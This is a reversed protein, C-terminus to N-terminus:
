EIEDRYDINIYFINSNDEEEGVYVSCHELDNIQKELKNLDVNEDVSIDFHRLNIEDEENYLIDVYCVDEVIKIIEEIKAEIKEEINFYIRQNPRYGQNGFEVNEEIFQNLNQGFM